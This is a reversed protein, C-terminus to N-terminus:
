PKDILATYTVTASSRRDPRMFCRCDACISASRVVGVVGCSKLLIEQYSGLFRVDEMPRGGFSITERQCIGSGMDATPSTGNSTLVQPLRLRVVLQDTKVTFFEEESDFTMILDVSAANQRVSSLLMKSPTPTSSKLEM